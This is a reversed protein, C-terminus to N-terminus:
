GVMPQAAVKFLVITTATSRSICYANRHSSFSSYSDAAVTWASYRPAASSSYKPPSSHALVASLRKQQRFYTALHRVEQPRTSQFRRCLLCGQNQSPCGAPVRRHEVRQAQKQRPLLGPRDSRGVGRRGGWTRRRTRGPRGGQGQHTLTPAWLSNGRENGGGHGATADVVAKWNRYGDEAVICRSSPAGRASIAGGAEAPLPARGVGADPQIWWPPSRDSSRDRPWAAGESVLRPRRRSTAASTAATCQAPTAEGDEPEGRKIGATITGEKPDRLVHRCRSAQRTLTRCVRPRGNGRPTPPRACTWQRFRTSRGANPRKAVQDGGLRRTPAPLRDYSCKGQQRLPTRRWRAAGEVRRM